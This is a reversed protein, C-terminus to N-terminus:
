FKTGPLTLAPDFPAIQVEAKAVQVRGNLYYENWLDGGEEGEGHLTFLITPHKRSFECMEARHEYWKSDNGSSSGDADLAYKAEEVEERLQAIVATLPAPDLLQAIKGGILLDVKLSHQTYYGM